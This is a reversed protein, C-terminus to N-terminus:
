DVSVSSGTFVTGMFLFDKVESAASSVNVLDRNALNWFTSARIGSLSILALV